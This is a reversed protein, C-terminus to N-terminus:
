GGGWGMCKQFPRKVCIEFLICIGGGGGLSRYKPVDSSFNFFDLFFALVWRTPACHIDGLSICICICLYTYACFHTYMDYMEQPCNRNQWSQANKPTPARTAENTGVSHGTPLPIHPVNLFGKFLAKQLVRPRCAPDAHQVSSRNSFETWKPRHRHQKSGRKTLLCAAVM